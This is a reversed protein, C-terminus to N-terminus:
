YAYKDGTAPALVRHTNNAPNHDGAGGSWSTSINVVVEAPNGAVSLDLAIPRGAGAPRMAGTSCLVTEPSGRLCGPPLPEVGTLPSSFRLRLTADPVATPGHNSPEVWVGVRGAWLSIHGHYAIDAEAGPAVPALANPGSAVAGSAVAGSAVAGPAAPAVAEPGVSSPGSAVGAQRVAGAVPAVGVRGGMRGVPDGVGGHAAGGHAVGASLSLGCVTVLVAAVAGVSLGGFRGFRGFGARM